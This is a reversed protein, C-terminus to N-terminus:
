YKGYVDYLYIKGDKEYYTAYRGIFVKEQATPRSFKDYFRTNEDVFVDIMKSPFATKMQIQKGKTGVVDIKAKTLKEPVFRDADYKTNEKLARVEVVIEEGNDKYKAVLYRCYQGIKLGRLSGKSGNEKIVNCDFSFLTDKLGFNKYKGDKRAFQISGPNFDIERLYGYADYVTYELENDLEDSWGDWGDGSEDDSKWGDDDASATKSSSSEPVSKTKFDYQAPLMYIDRLFLKGEIDEMVLRIKKSGSYINWKNGVEINNENFLRAGACDYMVKNRSGYPTMILKENGFTQYTGEITKLDVGKGRYIKGYYESAMIYVDIIENKENYHCLVFKGQLKKLDMKAIPEDNTDYFKVDPALAYEKHSQVLGISLHNDDVVSYVFSKIYDGGAFASLGFAYLLLSVFAFKVKRM